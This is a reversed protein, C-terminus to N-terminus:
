HARALEVRADAPDGEVYQERFWDQVSVAESECTEVMQAAGLDLHLYTVQLYHAFEHALSEDLTRGRRNYYSADDILYIENQVIAYTNAFVNPRFSWQGEIADQFRHLPTTSELHIAPVPIDSRLTVNLRAAVKELIFQVGFRLQTPPAVSEEAVAGSALLLAWVTVAFGCLRRGM